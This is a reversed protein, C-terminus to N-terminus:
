KEGRLEKVWQELVAARAEDAADRQGKTGGVPPRLDNLKQMLPLFSKVRAPVLADGMDKLIVASPEHQRFQAASQEFASAMGQGYCKLCAGANSEAEEIVVPTPKAQEVFRLGCGTALMLCSAFLYPVLKM